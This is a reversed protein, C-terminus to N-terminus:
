DLSEDGGTAEILDETMIIAHETEALNEPDLPPEINLHDEEPGLPPGANLNDELLGNEEAIEILDEITVTIHDAEGASELELGIDEHKMLDENNSVYYAGQVPSVLVSPNGTSYKWTNYLFLVFDIGVELEIAGSIFWRENEYIGGHQMVEITDGVAHDGQFVELVRIRYITMLYLHPEFDIGSLYSAIEEETLGEEALEEEVIERPIVTSRWEVREDLVKGRIVDTAIDALEETDNAPIIDKFIEIERISNAIENNDENFITQNEDNDVMPEAGFGNCASLNVLGLLLITLISILKAKKM